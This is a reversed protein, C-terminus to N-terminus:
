REGGEDSEDEEIVGIGKMIEVWGDGSLPCQALLLCDKESVFIQGPIYSHPADKKSGRQIGFQAVKRNKYYIKALDHKAGVDIIAELKEAIKEAHEKTINNAM